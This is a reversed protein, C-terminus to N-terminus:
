CAEVLDALFAAFEPRDNFMRARTYHGVGKARAIGPLLVDADYLTEIHDSVFGLPVVVLSSWASANEAVHADAYPKLWELPGVKSQWALSWSDFGELRAALAEATARVERGYPDGAAAYARPIGHASFLLHVHSAGNEPVRDLAAQADAAALELYRPHLGWREILRARLGVEDAARRLDNWSSGTTSRSWHPYLTLAVVDDAGAEALRSLATTARPEVYRFAAQVPRWADRAALTKEVQAALAETTACIPSGGGAHLAVEGPPMHTPHRAIDVYKQRVGPARGSAVRRALFPQFPRMPTPLQIIDGDAFLDSLFPEVEPPGRPGGMQLLAVGATM